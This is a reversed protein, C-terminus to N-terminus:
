LIVEASEQENYFSASAIRFFARIPCIALPDSVKLNSNFYYYCVSYKGVLIIFSCSVKHRTSRLSPRLARRAGGGAGGRAAGAATHPVGQAVGVACVLDKYRMSSIGHCPIKGDTLPM